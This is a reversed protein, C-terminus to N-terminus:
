LMMLISANLHNRYKRSYISQAIEQLIKSTDACSALEKPNEIVDDCNHITNKSNSESYQDCGM